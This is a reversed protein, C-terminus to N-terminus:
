QVNKEQNDILLSLTETGAQFSSQSSHGSMMKYQAMNSTQLMFVFLLVLFSFIGIGLFLAIRKM